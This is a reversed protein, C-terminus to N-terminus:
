FNSNKIKRSIVAFLKDCNPFYMQTCLSSISNNCFITHNIPKPSLQEHSITPFCFFKETFLPIGFYQMKLRSFKALSLESTGLGYYKRFSGFLVKCIFKFIKGLNSSINQEIWCFTCLIQQKQCKLSKLEPILCSQVFSGM